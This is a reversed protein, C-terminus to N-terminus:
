TMRSPATVIPLSPGSVVARGPSTRPVQAKNSVSGSGTVAFYPNDVVGVYAYMWSHVDCKFPVLVEPVTFTVDNKMGAVMQGFNFERNAEPRGHVNHMTNDSNIIELPQTTRVGVVHPVYHCGKQDLKM